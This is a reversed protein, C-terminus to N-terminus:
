YLELVDIVPPILFRMPLGIEGIGSTVFVKGNKYKYLGQDWLVNGRVPIVKKYLYPIRIQGGHTHGALTLDPYHNSKFDLATDPNHMLVILKEDKNYSDLLSVKDERAWRSGLGLITIGNLKMAKNTILHVGYKKLIVVLEGRVKPGPRECDHNGLVAYVPIKFKKLSAFLVEMDDFQPEYTLDGAIMVADVDLQNIKDVTRELISANNYIGLHIDAILAYKAKFGTEIKYHNVFLLKPEIFRAYIFIIALLILIIRRKKVFWYLLPFVLWSGYYIFFKIYLIPAIEEM